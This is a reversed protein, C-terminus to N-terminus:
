VGGRRQRRSIERGDTLGFHAPPGAVFNPSRLPYGGAMLNTRAPVERKPTGDHGGDLSTGMAPESQSTDRESGRRDDADRHPRDTDHREGPNAPLVPLCM